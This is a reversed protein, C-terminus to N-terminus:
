DRGTHSSNELKFGDLVVKEGGGGGGGGGTSWLAMAILMCGLMAM